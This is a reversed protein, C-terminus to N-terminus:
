LRDVPISRIMGEARRYYYARAEAAKLRRKQEFGPREGAYKYAAHEAIRAPSAIVEIAEALTKLRVAVFRAKRRAHLDYAVIGLLLAVSLYALTMAQDYFNM